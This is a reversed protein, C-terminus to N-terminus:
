LVGESVIVEQLPAPEQALALQPAGLALMLGLGLTAGIGTASQLRRKLGM